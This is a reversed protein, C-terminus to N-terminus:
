RQVFLRSHTADVRECTVRVYPHKGYRHVVTRVTSRPLLAVYHDIEGTEISRIIGRMDSRM